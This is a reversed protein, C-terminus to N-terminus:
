KISSFKNKVKMWYTETRYIKFKEKEPEERKLNLKLVLVITPKNKLESV